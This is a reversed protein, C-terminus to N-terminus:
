ITFSNPPLRDWAPKAMVKNINDAIAIRGNQPSIISFNPTFFVKYTDSIMNQRHLTAYMKTSLKINKSTSRKKAVPPTASYIDMNM